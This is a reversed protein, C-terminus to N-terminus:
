CHAAGSQSQGLAFCRQCVGAATLMARVDGSCGTLAVGRAVALAVVGVGAGDIGSCQALDIKRVRHSLHTLQRATEFHLRGHVRAQGRQDVSISGLNWHMRLYDVLGKLVPKNDGIHLGLLLDDGHLQQRRITALGCTLGLSSYIEWEVTLMQDRIPLKPLRGQLRTCLGTESIDLLSGILDHRVGLQVISVGVKLQAHQQANGPIRYRVQQRRETVQAEASNHLAQRANNM